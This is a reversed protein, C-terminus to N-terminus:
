LAIRRLRSRALNAAVTRVWTGPRRVDGTDWRGLLRVFAEQTIEEALEWRGTLVYVLKLVPGRNHRYFDDFGGEGSTRACASEVADRRV